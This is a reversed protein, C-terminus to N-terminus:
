SSPLTLTTGAPIRNQPPYNPNVRYIKHWQSRDNFVREAIDLISEGSPNQVTYTGGPGTTPPNSVKAIPGPTPTLPTPADMRVQPPANMRILTHYDRDLITAPPQLVQQGSNLIPPNVNLSSGNKVMSSHERNYQLLADAYKDTGYMRLSLIAFTTDGKQTEYLDTNVDKVAPLPRAGGVIIPAAPLVVGGAPPIVAIPGPTPTIPKTPPLNDFSDGPTPVPPKANDPLPALPGFTPGKPAPVPVGGVPDFPAPKPLDPIPTKDDFPKVAKFEVSGIAGPAPPPVSKNAGDKGFPSPPPMKPDAGTPPPILIGGPPPIGVGGPTPLPPLGVPLTGVGGPTPLPPITGVGVGGPTPLPPITGAGVGGPTPLPPITGAGAGGPTPLPPITGVGGPTPLPPITGPPTQDGNNRALAARLDELRKKELEKEIANEEIPTPGPAIKLDPLGKSKAEDSKKENKTEKSKTQAAAVPAPKPPAAESKANSKADTPHLIAGPVVTQEEADTGDGRNWKSAVVIAVLCLFSGAVILGIKTERTMHREQIVRNAAPTRM